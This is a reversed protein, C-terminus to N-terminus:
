LNLKSVIATGKEDYEAKSVAVGEFDDSSAFVSGGIWTSFSRNQQAVINIKASKEVIQSLESEFREAFGNFLSSGGCLVVNDFLQARISADCNMISDMAAKQISPFNLGNLSPNFLLEPIKFREDSVKFEDGDQSQYSVDCSPNYKEIENQYNLAVYGYKEKIESSILLGTIDSLQFGREKQAKLFLNTLERGGFNICKSESQLSQCEHVPVIQITEYGVDISLGSKQGTSFVSLASQKCISFLPVQFQEFFVQLSKERQRKDSKISDTLLVPHENSNVKLENEYIYNFIQILENWNMVFGSRVPYDINLIGIKDFADNGVYSEQSQQGIISGKHRPNGVITPFVSHPASENAFGAKCFGSGIDIVISSTSM